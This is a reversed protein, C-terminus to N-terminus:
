NKTDDGNKEKNYQRHWEMNTKSVGEGRKAAQRGSYMVIICLVITVAVMCLSVYVRSWDKAKNIVSISIYEPVDEVSKYKKHWVLIRKDFNTARKLNAPNGQLQSSTRIGPTFQLLSKFRNGVFSNSCRLSHSLRLFRCYFLSSSSM